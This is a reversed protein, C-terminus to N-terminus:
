QFSQQSQGSFKSAAQSIDQANANKVNYYGKQQMLDFLQKQQSYVDGIVTMYDRRLQESSAELIYTNLSAAFHKSENLCVQLIDRDSIQSGQGSLGSQATQGGKAMQQNTQVM